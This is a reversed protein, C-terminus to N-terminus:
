RAHLRDRSFPLDSRWFSRNAARSAWAGALRAPTASGHAAVTQFGVGPATPFLWAEVTIEPQRLAASNPVRVHVTGDFDFATGVKGAATVTAASPTAGSYFGGRHGGIVDTANSDGPWWALVGPVLSVTSAFRARVVRDGDMTVTMTPAAPNTGPDLEGTWGVFVSPTVPTATVTVREPFGATGPASYSREMPAIVVAGGANCGARLQPRQTSSGSNDGTVTLAATASVVTGSGNIVTVSYLGSDTTGAEPILLSDGTAGAIDGGDKHWQFTVNSPNAVLVSFGAWDGPAATQDVPQWALTPVAPEAPALSTANGTADFTFQLM